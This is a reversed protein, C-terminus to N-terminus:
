NSKENDKIKDVEKIWSFIKKEQMKIDTLTYMQKSVVLTEGRYKLTSFKPNDTPLISILDISM